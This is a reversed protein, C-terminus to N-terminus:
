VWSTGAGDGLSGVSWGGWRKQGGSVGIVLWPGGGGGVVTMEAARGVQLMEQQSIKGDRDLDYLQFAVPLPLLCAPRGPEGRGLCFAVRLLLSARWLSM